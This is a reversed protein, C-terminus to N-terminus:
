GASAEDFPQRHIERLITSRTFRSRERVQRKMPRDVRSTSSSWSRPGISGCDRRSRVAITSSVNHFRRWEILVGVSSSRPDHNVWSRPGITAFITTKKLSIQLWIVALEMGIPFGRRRGLSDSGRGLM